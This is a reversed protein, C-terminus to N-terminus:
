LTRARGERYRSEASLVTRRFSAVVSCNKAARPSYPESITRDRWPRMKGAFRLVPPGKPGGRACKPGLGHRCRDRRTATPNVPGCGCHRNRERRGNFCLPKLPTGHPHNFCLMTGRLPNQCPYTHKLPTRHPHNFCLMTGWLLNQSPYTHKLPTGHPHNFCLM